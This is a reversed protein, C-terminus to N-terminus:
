NVRKKPDNKEVRVSAMEPLGVTVVHSPLTLVPVNAKDVVLKAGSTASGAGLRLIRGVPPLNGANSM